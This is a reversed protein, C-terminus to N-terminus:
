KQTAMPNEKPHITSNRAVTTKKKADDQNKQERNEKQNQHNKMSQELKDKDISPEQFPKRRMRHSLVLEAAERVDDETVEKRHHYTAITQATKLMAIDARHGDVEMDIAISTILSLIDDSYTVDALLQQATVIHDCLLKEEGEWQHSFGHSDMEFSLYRRVVNKREEPDLIGEVDVCLAFRDLLQPRLEGEEPNMTGILMFRSPHSFSVGEREVTNVGMAASDLLVDVLHDDLLNVEDVYLIGRHASALIGPDFHKEGKKIAKEIDLTGLVRDETAGLPLEVVQMPRTKVPLIEKQNFRTRCGACMDAVRKPDCHFPCDSVINIQPLLNALARVATSKATGKQGRILVGGLRPNIANLALAKKMREQGVIASFPFIIKQCSM